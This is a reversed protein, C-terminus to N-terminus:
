NEKASVSFGHLAWFRLWKIGSVVWYMQKYEPFDYELIEDLNEIDPCIARVQEELKNTYELVEPPDHYNRLEYRLNGPLLNCSDIPAPDFKNDSNILKDTQLAKIQEISFMIQEHKQNLEDLKTQYIQVDEQTKNELKNFESTFEIIKHLSARRQELRQSITKGYIIWIIGM